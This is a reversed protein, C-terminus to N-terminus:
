GWPYHEQELGGRAAYEWEAESPLWTGSWACFAAADAWSVHVVPHGERGAVSSQPGEPRRWDAGFVQRWWPAEAAARTMPFDDPLLGAFVFSWRFREADTIYGTEEVFRGFRANTLACRGIRFGSLRVDHAPGEGDEPYGDGAANGMLTSGAPVPILDLGEATPRGGGRPLDVAPAPHEGRGPACCRTDVPSTMPAQISASGSQARVPARWRRRPHGAGGRDHRRSRTGAPPASWGFPSPRAGIDGPPRAPIMRRSLLLLITTSLRPSKRHDSRTMKKM